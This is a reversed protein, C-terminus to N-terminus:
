NKCGELKLSQGPRISFKPAKLKNARALEGVNCNFKRAIGTLNEGRQVTYSKPAAAKAPRM